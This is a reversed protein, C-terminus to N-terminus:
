TSTPSGGDDPADPEVVASAIVDKIEAIAYALGDAIVDSAASATRADPVSLSYGYAGVGNAAMALNLVHGTLHSLANQTDIGLGRTKASRSMTFELDAAISRFAELVSKFADDWHPMSGAFMSGSENLAVVEISPATAAWEWDGDSLSNQSPHNHWFRAGEGSAAVARM